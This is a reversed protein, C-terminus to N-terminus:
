IGSKKELFVANVVDQASLYRSGVAAYLDDISQQKLSRAASELLNDNKEIGEQRFVETIANLGRERSEVWRTYRRIRSKAKDTVVFSYWGPNPSGGIATIIEVEDGNELLTRLPRISGNIRAGVCVDGLDSHVAYAFDVCTAGRPLRLWHGRPTYCSIQDDWAAHRFAARVEPALTKMLVDVDKRTISFLNDIREARTRGDLTRHDLKMAAGAIILNSIATIFHEKAKESQIGSRKSSLIIDKLVELDPEPLLDSQDVGRAVAHASSIENTGIFRRLRRDRAGVYPFAHLLQASFTVLDGLRRRLDAPLPSEGDETRSRYADDQEFLSALSVCAYYAAPLREPLQETPCKIAAIFRQATPLLDDWGPSSLENHRRVILADLGLAAALVELHEAQVAPDAATDVDGKAPARNIALQSGHPVYTLGSPNQAADLVRRSRLRVKAAEAFLNRLKSRDEDGPAKFPGFLARLIPSIENPLAKGTRWASVTTDAVGPIEQRRRNPRARGVVAQAFEANTWPEGAPDGPRTGSSLHQDFSAAFAAVLPDAALKSAM